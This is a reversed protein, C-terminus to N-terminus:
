NLIGWSVITIKWFHESLLGRTKILNEKTYDAMYNLDFVASDSVANNRNIEKLTEVFALYHANKDAENKYQKNFDKIYKKFLEQAKNVDYYPKNNVEDSNEDKVKDKVKNKDTRAAKVDDNDVDDDLKDNVLDNVKNKVKDKNKNTVKDKDAPAANVIAVVVLALVIGFLRM